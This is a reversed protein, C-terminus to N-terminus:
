PRMEPAQEDAPRRAPRFVLSFSRSCIDRERGVRRRSWRKFRRLKEGLLMHMASGYASWACSATDVRHWAISLGQVAENPLPIHSSVQSRFIASASEALLNRVFEVRRVKVYRM